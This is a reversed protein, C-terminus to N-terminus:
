GKSVAGDLSCISCCAHVNWATKSKLIISFRNELFREVCDDQFPYTDFDILGRVPHQIKLYSNFFYVPDKGSKIIESVQRSKNVRSM